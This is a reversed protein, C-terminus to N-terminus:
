DAAPRGSDGRSSRRGTAESGPSSWGILWAREGEGLPDVRGSGDLTGCRACFFWPLGESWYQWCGQGGGEGWLLTVEHYSAEPTLTPRMGQAELHLVTKTWESIPKQSVRQTVATSRSDQGTRIRPDDELPFQPWTFGWAGPLPGSRAPDFDTVRPGDWSPKRAVCRVLEATERGVYYIRRHTWGQRLGEPNKEPDWGNVSLAYCERGRVRVIRDVKLRFHMVPINSWISDKPAEQALDTSQLAIVWSEGVEWEPVVGGPGAAESTRALTCGTGGGLLLVVPLFRCRRGLSRVWVSM